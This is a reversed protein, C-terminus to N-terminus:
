EMLRRAARRHDALLPEEDLTAHRYESIVARGGVYVSHAPVTGCLAAAAVPDHSGSFEIRDLDLTFFDAMRGPELAGVDDRGLVAAGGRTAMELATRAPMQSGDGIGPSTALRALLMAQRVEALLNSADNSASGDV